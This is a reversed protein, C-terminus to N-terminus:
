RRSNCERCTCRAGVWVPEVAGGAEFQKHGAQTSLVVLNQIENNKPNGDRHHVVEDHGLRGRHRLVVYRHEQMALGALRVHEYRDKRGRLRRAVNTLLRVEPRAQHMRKRALITERHAKYYARSRALFCARCPQRLRGEATVYFEVFTLDLGCANCHALAAPVMGMAGPTMFWQGPTRIISGEIRFGTWPIAQGTESERVAPGTAVAKGVVTIEEGQRPLSGVVSRPLRVAVTTDYKTKTRRSQNRCRIGIEVDDTGPVDRHGLYEGTVRASNTTVGNFRGPGAYRLVDCGEKSVYGRLTPKPHACCARELEVCTSRKDALLRYEEGEPTLVRAFGRDQGTSVFELQGHLEVIGGHKM